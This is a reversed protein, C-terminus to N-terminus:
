IEGIFSFDAEVLSAPYARERFGVNTSMPSGPGHALPTNPYPARMPPQDAKAMTWDEDADDQAFQHYALAGMGLVAAVIIWAGAPIQRVAGINM